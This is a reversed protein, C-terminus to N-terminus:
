VFPRFYCGTVKHPTEDDCAHADSATQHACAGTHKCPTNRHTRRDAHAQGQASRDSAAARTVASQSETEAAGNPFL